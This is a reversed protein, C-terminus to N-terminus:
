TGRAYGTQEGKQKLVLCVVFIPTGVIGTLISIPLEASSILRNIIDMLVLFVAGLILTLGATDNNDTGVLIRALLPMVLGIWGISGAISVSLSVLVTACVIFLTRFVSVNFGLSIAETDPYCYYNLKWRNLLILVICVLAPIVTESIQKMSVSSIDGMIWFVITQLHSEPNATYKIYGLVSSMLGSILIGSLILSLTKETKFARSLIFVLLVSLLGSVFSFGQIYVTSLDLIIATAAGVCAGTNVGLIDQSVLINRFVCQYTLGALSLSGGILIAAITRPLRINILINRLVALTSADTKEIGMIIRACQIPSIGYQGILLSLIALIFLSVLLSYTILRANRKKRNYKDVQSKKKAM